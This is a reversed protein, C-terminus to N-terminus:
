ALKFLIHIVVVSDVVRVNEAAPRFRIASVAHAASEDLGHGLRKLIRAVRAQGSASPLVEAVVEGEIKLSRGEPICAPTPKFIIETPTLQPRSKMGGPNAGSSPTTNKDGFGSDHVIARIQDSPSPSVYAQGSASSTAVGPAEKAGGTGNREGNGILLDFSASRVNNPRHAAGAGAVANTDGFGGTQVQEGAKLPKPLSAAPLAVGRPPTLPNAPVQRPTTWRPGRLETTWRDIPLITLLSIPTQECSPALCASRLFTILSLIGLGWLYLGIILFFFIHWHPRVEVNVDSRFVPIFSDVPSGM